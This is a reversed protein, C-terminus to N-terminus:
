DARIADNVSKRKEVLEEALPNPAATDSGGTSTGGPAALGTLKQYLKYPNDVSARVRANDDFSLRDAIYGNRVNGAYLTLPDTGAPNVAKSIVFDASPGTATAQSGSGTPQKGTFAQSLGQAHGCGSPGSLPFNVGKVILLNKAHEALADVAKGSDLLGSLAGTSTPWFRKPEVGCAACIFFTFIPEAGAAWASREPLGELFPLGIAVGGAGYLFARRNIVKRRSVGSM